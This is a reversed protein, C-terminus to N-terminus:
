ADGDAEVVALGNEMLDAVFVRVEAMCQDPAIGYEAVLGDVLAQLTKPQELHEWIRRATGELAYYKGKAISMMMTQDAVTTEVHDSGRAILTAPTLETM